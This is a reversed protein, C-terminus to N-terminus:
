LMFDYDAFIWESFSYYDNVNVKRYRDKSSSRSFVYIIEMTDTQYKEYLEQIIKAIPNM